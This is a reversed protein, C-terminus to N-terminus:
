TILELPRLIPQFLDLLLEIRYQEINGIQRMFADRLSAVLAVIDLEPPPSLDGLEIERRLIM